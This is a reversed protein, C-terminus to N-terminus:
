TVVVRLRRVEPRDLVTGSLTLRIRTAAHSFGALKFTMESFGDDAGGTHDLPVPVYTGVTTEAAVAVAAAGPLKAELVVTVTSATGATVQRSVYTATESLSGLIAQVGPFLVPSRLASGKLVAQVTATGTKRADLSVVQGDVVRIAEGSVTFVLEVETDPGSREVGALAILDSVDSMTISGLSVTRSAGTFQAALLRFTLDRNQHATWTSANSSSLLVGVQYPQAAIWRNSEADFKGLEAIRVAHEADDTLIVIAFERDAALWVPDFTARVWGTTVIQGAEVFAEALVERTPFGTLTARLQVVVPANGGKAAFQFDVGAIHRGEALTFTQALPDYWEDVQVTVLRREETTIIGRGVYGSTGMSGQAGLVRVQKSGAPLNPPVTFQGTAVGEASAAISAPTTAVPIGDFSVQQVAEGGDMGRVEFDVTRQRLFQDSTETRSMLEIQQSTSSRLIHGGGSVSVFRRTVASAWLVNLVTWQDIAPNLRVRAPLPEFAQYPNILMTGSRLTQEILPVVTYDLTWPRGGNLASTDAVVAAIPLTLIGDVIAATQAIGQDRLDDDLFPDVFVGKKAAPERISTDTRLRELAVLDYLDGIQRRMDEIDAFPVARIGDNRIGPTGTWTLALTAIGLLGAPARPPQASWPHAVGKLRIIAGDRDLALRDFRPLKWTYDVLMLQGAVLSEGAPPGITVGTADQGTLVANAVRRYKVTYTSGTAPETGAPSWDVRDANLVYDTGQAYTTGGQKVEVIQVVAPDPLPDLGGAFPGRTPTVTKEAVVDTDSIAAIPVRNLDVRVAAGSGSYLHPESEVAQIDPDEPYVLRTATSRSVKFGEVNAVGEEVTFTMQGGAPAFAIVRFGAVVYSGNSERDYRAIAQTVGDLQPPPVQNVLVGNEVLYVPFFQGTGGDGNWGWALAARARWAGPEQYNRTGVGPDLLSPDELETVDTEVLRVGINVSQDVPITFEVAPVPRVAGRIYIDGAEMRVVGTAVDIVAAAGRIVDGDNFVADGLGRLRHILIDQLENLEASQLGRGILFKLRDFLKDRDFRNYYSVIPV